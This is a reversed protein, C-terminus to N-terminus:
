RARAEVFRVSLPQQPLQPPRQDARPCALALLNSSASLATFHRETDRQRATSPTGFHPSSTGSRRRRVITSGSILAQRGRAVFIRRSSERSWCAIATVWRRGLPVRHASKGSRSRGPYKRRARHYMPPSGPSAVRLRCDGPRFLDLRKMEPAPTGQLDNGRTAAM